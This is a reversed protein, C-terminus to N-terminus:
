LTTLRSQIQIVCFVFWNSFCCSIMLLTGLNRTIRCNTEVGNFELNDIPSKCPVVKALLELMCSPHSVWQVCIADHLDLGCSSLPKYEFIMNLVIRFDYWIRQRGNRNNHSQGTQWTAFGPSNFM